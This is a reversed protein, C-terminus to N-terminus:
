EESNQSFKTIGSYCIVGIGKYAEDGLSLSLFVCKFSRRVGLRLVLGQLWLCIFSKRFISFFLFLFVECPCINILSCWFLYM